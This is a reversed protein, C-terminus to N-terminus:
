TSTTLRRRCNLVAPESEPEAQVRVYMADPQLTYWGDVDAGIGTLEVVVAPPHGAASPCRTNRLKAADTAAASESQGDPARQM